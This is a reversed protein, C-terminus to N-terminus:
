AANLHNHAFKPGCLLPFYKMLLGLGLLAGHADIHQAIAMRM